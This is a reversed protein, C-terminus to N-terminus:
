HVFTGRRKGGRSQPLPRRRGVRHDAASHMKPSPVRFLPPRWVARGWGPRRSPWRPGAVAYSHPHWLSTLTNISFDNVDQLLDLISNRTATPPTLRDMKSRCRPLDRSSSENDASLPAVDPSRLRQRGIRRLEEPDPAVGPSRDCRRSIDPRQRAIQRLTEPCRATTEPHPESGAVVPRKRPIQPLAELCRATM